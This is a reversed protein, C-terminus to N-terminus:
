GQEAMYLEVRSQIRGAAEDVSRQGTCFAGAEERVIDAIVQDFSTSRLASDLLALLADRQEQSMAYLKEERVLTSNADYWQVVSRPIREGEPGDWFRVMGEEMRVIFSFIITNRYGEEPGPERM